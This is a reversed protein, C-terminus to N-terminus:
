SAIAQIRKLVADTDAGNAISTAADALLMAVRRRRGAVRICAIYDDVHVLYGLPLFLLDAADSDTHHVGAIRLRRHVHEISPTENDDWLSTIARWYAACRGNTFDAPELPIRELQRRIVVDVLQQEVVTTTDATPEVTM